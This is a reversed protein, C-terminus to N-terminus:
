CFSFPPSHGSPFCGLPEAAAPLIVAFGPLVVTFSRPPTPPASTFQFPFTSVGFINCRPSGTFMPCFTLITATVEFVLWPRTQKRFAAPSQRALCRLCYRPPTDRRSLGFFSLGLEPFLGFGGSSFRSTGPRKRRPSFAAGIVTSPPRVEDYFYDNLYFISRGFTPHFFLRGPASLLHIV